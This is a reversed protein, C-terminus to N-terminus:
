WTEAAESATDYGTSSYNGIIFEKMLAKAEELSLERIDPLYPIGDWTHTVGTRVWYKKHSPWAYAPQDKANADANADANTDEGEGNLILRAYAGM